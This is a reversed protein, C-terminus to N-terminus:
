YFKFALTGTCLDVMIRPVTMIKAKLSALKLLLPRLIQLLASLLLLTYAPFLDCFTLDFVVGFCILLLDTSTDRENCM